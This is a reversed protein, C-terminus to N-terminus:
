PNQGGKGRREADSKAAHCPTCLSQLNKMDLRLRHDISGDRRRFRRVHDVEVAPTVQGRAECHECLPDRALKVLRLRRWDQDYGRRAASGRQREALDGIGEPRGAGAGKLTQPRAPM